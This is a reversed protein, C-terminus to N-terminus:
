KEWIWLINAVFAVLHAYLGLGTPDMITMVSAGVVGGTIVIKHTRFNRNWILEFLRLERIAKSDEDPLIRDIM